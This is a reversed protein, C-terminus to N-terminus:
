TEVFQGCLQRMLLTKTKIALDRVKGSMILKKLRAYFVVLQWEVLVYYHADAQTYYLECLM